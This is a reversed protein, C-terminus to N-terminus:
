REPGNIQCVIKCKSIVARATIKDKPIWLALCSAMVLVTAPFYYLVIYYSVSRGFEFSVRLETWNGTSYAKEISIWTCNYLQIEPLMLDPALSVSFEDHWALRM